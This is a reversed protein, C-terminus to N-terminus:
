APDGLRFSTFSFSTSAALPTVSMLWTGPTTWRIQEAESLKFDLGSVNEAIRAGKLTKLEMTSSIASTRNYAEVM